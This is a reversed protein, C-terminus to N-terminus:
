PELLSARWGRASRDFRQRHHLRDDKHTWFEIATPEIRFGDWSSPRPVDRGALRRELARRRSLLVARSALPASQQSTAGSLQSGRPRTAWYADAEAAPVRRVRGEVRV